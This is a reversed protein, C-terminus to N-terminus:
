IYHLLIAQCMGFYSSEESDQYPKLKLKSLGAMAKRFASILLQLRDLPSIALPLSSLDSTVGSFYDLYPLGPGSDMKPACCERLSLFDSM